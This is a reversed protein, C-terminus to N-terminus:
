SPTSPRSTSSRTIFSDIRSHEGTGESGRTATRSVSTPPKWMGAPENTVTDGYM